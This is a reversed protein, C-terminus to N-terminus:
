KKHQKALSTRVERVFEASVEAIDAAQENSFGLKVILNKVVETKGEIKGEIKGEEKNIGKVTEIIGM